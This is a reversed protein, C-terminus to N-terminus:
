EAFESPFGNSCSTPITVRHKKEPSKGPEQLAGATASVVAAPGTRSVAPSCLKGIQGNAASTSVVFGLAVHPYVPARARLCYEM